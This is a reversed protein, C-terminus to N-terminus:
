LHKFSLLRVGLSGHGHAVGVRDRGETGELDDPYVVRVDRREPGAFFSCFKMM